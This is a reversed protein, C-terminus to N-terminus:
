DAVGYRCIHTQSSHHFASRMINMRFDSIPLYILMLFNIREKASAQGEHVSLSFEFCAAIGLRDLSINPLPFGKGSLIFLM